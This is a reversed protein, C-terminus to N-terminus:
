QAGNGIRTMPRTNDWYEAAITRRGQNQVQEALLRELEGLRDELTGSEVAARIRDLVWVESKGQDLSIRGTAMQRYVKGMQRLVGKLKTLDAIGKVRGRKPTVTEAKDLTTLDNPM